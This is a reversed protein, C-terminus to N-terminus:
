NKYKFTALTQNFTEKAIPPVRSGTQGGSAYTFSYIKGNHAAMITPHESEGSNVIVGEIDGNKYKKVSGIMRRNAEEEEIVYEDEQLKPHIGWTNELYQIASLNNPNDQVSVSMKIYGTEIVCSDYAKANMSAFVNEVSLGSDSEKILLEPHYRMSFGYKKSDYSEWSDNLYPDFNKQPSFAIKTYPLLEKLRIQEDQSFNNGVLALESLKNKLKAIEPPLKSLNNDSLDLYETKTLEGVKASVENLHQGCFKLKAASQSYKIADEITNIGYYDFGTDTSPSPLALALPDSPTESTSKSKPIILIVGVIVIFIIAGILGLSGKQNM